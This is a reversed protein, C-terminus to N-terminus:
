GLLTLLEATVAPGDEAVRYTAALTRVDNIYASMPASGTYAGPRSMGALYERMIQRSIWLDHGATRLAAVKAVAQGHFPATVLEAYMLINTDVFVPEATATAM